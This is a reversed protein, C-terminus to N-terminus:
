NVRPLFRVRTLDTSRVETVKLRELAVHANMGSLLRIM